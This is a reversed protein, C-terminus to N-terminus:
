RRYQVFETLGGLRDYLARATVNNEHPAWYTRSAGRRDAEAYTAEILARGVGAGRAEPAVFLDELYCYWTPSWTSRHFVMNVIGLARGEEDTAIFGAMNDDRTLLRQWTLEIVDEPVDEEYFTIYDCFLRLWGAKDAADIPRVAITM